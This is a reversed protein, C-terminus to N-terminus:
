FLLSCILDVTRFISFVIINFFSIFNENSVIRFLSFKIWGKNWFRVFNKLSCIIITSFQTFIFILMHINFRCLSSTFCRGLDTDLLIFLLSFLETFSLYLGQWQLKSQSTKALCILLLHLSQELGKEKWSQSTVYRFPSLSTTCSM